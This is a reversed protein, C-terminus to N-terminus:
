APLQIRPTRPIPAKTTADHEADDAIVAAVRDKHVALITGSFGACRNGRVLVSGRGQEVLRGAGKFRQGVTGGLM